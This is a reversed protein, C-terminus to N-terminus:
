PETGGIAGVVLERYEVMSIIFDDKRTSTARQKAQETRVEQEFSPPLDDRGFM